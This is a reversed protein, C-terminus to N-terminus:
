ELSETPGLEETLVAIDQLNRNATALAVVAVVLREANIHCKLSLLVGAPADLSNVARLVAISNEPSLQSCGLIAGGPKAMLLARITLAHEQVLQAVLLVAVAPLIQGRHVADVGLPGHGSGAARTRSRSLLGMLRRDGGNRLGHESAIALVFGLIAVARRERGRRIPSAIGLNAAPPATM